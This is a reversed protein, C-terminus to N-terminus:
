APKLEIAVWSGPLGWWVGAVNLVFSAALIWVLTRWDCVRELAHRLTRISARALTAAALVLLGVWIWESVALVRDLGARAALRALSRIRRPRLAWSPVDSLTEDGRAWLLGFRIPGGRHTYSVLMSHAGETLHLPGTVPQGDIVIAAIGDSEAAFRYNGARLPCVFGTWATTFADPPSDNWADLVLHTSPAPDIRVIAARPAPSDLVTHEARLGLPVPDIRTALGLLLTLLSSVLLALGLRFRIV